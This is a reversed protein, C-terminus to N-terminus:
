RRHYRRQPSPMAVRWQASARRGWGASGAPGREPSFPSARDPAAPIAVSRRTSFPGVPLQLCPWPGFETVGVRRDEGARMRIVLTMITTVSKLTREAEAWCRCVRGVEGARLAFGVLVTAKASTVRAEPM